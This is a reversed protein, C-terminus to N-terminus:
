SGPGLLERVEPPVMHANTSAFKVLAAKTDPSEHLLGKLPKAPLSLLAPLCNPPKNTSYKKALAIFGPWLDKENWIQNQVLKPMVQQCVFQGLGRQQRTCELLLRLLLLPM